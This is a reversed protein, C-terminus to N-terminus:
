LRLPSHLPLLARPLRIRGPPWTGRLSSMGAQLHQALLAGAPALVATRSKGALLKVSDYTQLDDSHGCARALRDMRAGDDDGSAAQHCAHVESAAHMAPQGATICATRCRELAVPFLALVLALTAASLRRARTM